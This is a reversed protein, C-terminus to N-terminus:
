RGSISWDHRSAQPELCRCDGTPTGADPRPSGRGGPPAGRDQCVLAEIGEAHAISWLVREIARREAGERGEILECGASRVGSRAGAGRAIMTRVGLLAFKERSRDGSSVMRMLALAAEAEGLDGLALMIATYESEIWREPHSLEELLYRLAAESNTWGLRRVLERRKRPDAETALSSVLKLALPEGGARAEEKLRAQRAFVANGCEGFGPLPISVVVLICSLWLCVRSVFYWSM